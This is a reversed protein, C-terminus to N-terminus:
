METNTEPEKEEADWLNDALPSQIDGCIFNLVKIMDDTILLMEHNHAELERRDSFNISANKIQWQVMRDKLIALNQVRALDLELRIGTLGSGYIPNRIKGKKSLNLM